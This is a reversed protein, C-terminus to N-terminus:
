LCIVVLLTAWVIILWVNNDIWGICNKTMTYLKVCNNALYKNLFVIEELRNEIVRRIQEITRCALTKQKYSKLWTITFLRKMCAQIHLLQASNSPQGLKQM